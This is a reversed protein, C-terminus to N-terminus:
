WFQEVELQYYDVDKYSNDKKEISHRLLFTKSHKKTYIKEKVQEGHSLVM